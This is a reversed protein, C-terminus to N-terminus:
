EQQSNEADQQIQSDVIKGASIINIAPPFYSTPENPETLAAEIHKIGYHTISIQGGMSAHEVLGEGVLWDIVRRMRDHDLGLEDALGWMSVMKLQDDGVHEHIAHLVTLRKEKRKEIEDDSVM